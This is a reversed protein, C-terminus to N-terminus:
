YILFEQLKEIIERYDFDKSTKSFNAMSIRTEKFEKDIELKRSNDVIAQQRRGIIFSIAGIIFISLPVNTCLICLFTHDDYIHLKQM